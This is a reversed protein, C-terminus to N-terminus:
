ECNKAIFDKDEQILAMRQDDDMRVSEGEENTFFVRRAPEVQELRARHRACLQENLERNERREERETAMRERRQQAASQPTEGPEAPTASAPQPPEVTGPKYAGEVNIQQSDVTEPPTDSFHVVGSEDKWTYVETAHASFAAASTFIVALTLVLGPRNTLKM